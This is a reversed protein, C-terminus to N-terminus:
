DNSKRGLYADLKDRFILYRFGNGTVSPVAYGVDILGRKLYERLSQQSMGLEKSAQLLTVRDTM